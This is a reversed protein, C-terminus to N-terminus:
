KTTTTSIVTTPKERKDEFMRMGEMDALAKARPVPKLSIGFGVKLRLFFEEGAVADLVYLPEPREALKSVLYAGLLIPQYGVLRKFKISGPDCVYAFYGGNHVQTIYRDNAFLGVTCGGGVM